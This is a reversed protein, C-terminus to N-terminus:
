AGEDGEKGGHAAAQQMAISGSDTGDDERYDERYNRLQTETGGAAMAHSEACSAEHSAPSMKGDAKLHRPESTSQHDSTAFCSYVRCVLRYLGRTASALAADLVETLSDAAWGFLWMGILAYCMVFAKGEDTQM